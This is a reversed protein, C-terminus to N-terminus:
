LHERCNACALALPRYAFPNAVIPQVNTESACVMCRHRTTSLDRQEIGFDSSDILSPALSLTRTVFLTEAVVDEEPECALWETCLKMFACRQLSTSPKPEQKWGVAEKRTMLIRNQICSVAIEAM